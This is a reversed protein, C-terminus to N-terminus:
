PLKKKKDEPSHEQQLKVYEKLGLSVTIFLKVTNLVSSCLRM